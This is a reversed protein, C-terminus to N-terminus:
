QYSRCLCLFPVTNNVRNVIIQECRSISVSITASIKIIISTAILSNNSQNISYQSDSTELM